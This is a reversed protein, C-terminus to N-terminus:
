RGAAPPRGRRSVIIAYGIVAMLLMAGPALAPTAGTLAEWVLRLGRLGADREREFEVNGRYHLFLGLAGSAALLWLLARFARESAAGPARGYWAGVVASIAIVAFPIFQKIDEYHELLVLEAAIGLLGGFFIALLLRSLYM